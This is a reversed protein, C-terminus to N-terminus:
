LVPIGTTTDDVNQEGYEGYPTTVEEPDYDPNANMMAKSAITNGVCSKVFNSSILALVLIASLM